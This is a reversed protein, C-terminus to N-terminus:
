RLHHDQEGRRHDATREGDEDLHVVAPGLESPQALLARPSEPARVRNANALQFATSRSFSGSRTHKADRHYMQRLRPAFTYRQISNLESPYGYAHTTSVM